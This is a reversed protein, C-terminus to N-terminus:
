PYWHGEVDEKCSSIPNPNYLVFIPEPAAMELEKIAEKQIRKKLKMNYTETCHKSARPDLEYFNQTIRLCGIRAAADLMRDQPAGYIRRWELANPGNGEHYM